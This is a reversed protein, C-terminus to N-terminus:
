TLDRDRDNGNLGDVLLDAVSGISRLKSQRIIETLAPGSILLVQAPVSQLTVLNTVEGFPALVERSCAAHADAKDASRGELRAPARDCQSTDQAIPRYVDRSSICCLFPM